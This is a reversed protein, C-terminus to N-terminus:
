SMLAATVDTAVYTDFYLKFDVDLVENLIVFCTALISLTRVEQCKKTLFHM